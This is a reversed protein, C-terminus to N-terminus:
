PTHPVLHLKVQQGYLVLNTGDFAFHRTARVNKALALELSVVDFCLKRTSTVNGFGFRNGSLRITFNMHNCGAFASGKPANTLDITVTNKQLSSNLKNDDDTGTIQILQWVKKFENPIPMSAVQPAPTTVPSPNTIITGSPTRYIPQPNQTTQTQPTPTPAPATSTAQCATLGFGLTVLTLAIKSINM